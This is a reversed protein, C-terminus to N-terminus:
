LFILYNIYEIQSLLDFLDSFGIEKYWWTKMIYNIKFIIYYVLGIETKNILFRKMKVQLPSFEQLAMKVIKMAYKEASSSFVNM